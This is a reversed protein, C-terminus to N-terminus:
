LLEHLYPVEKALIAAYYVIYYYDGLWMKELKHTHDVNCARDSEWM